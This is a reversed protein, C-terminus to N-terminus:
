TGLPYPGSAPSPPRLVDYNDKFTLLARQREASPYSESKRENTRGYDSDVLTIPPLDFQDDHKILYLQPDDTTAFWVYAMVIGRGRL